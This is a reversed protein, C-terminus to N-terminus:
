LHTFCFILHQFKYLYMINEIAIYCSLMTLKSVNQAYMVIYFFRFVNSQLPFFSIVKIIINLLIYVLHLLTIQLYGNISNIFKNSQMHFIEVIM